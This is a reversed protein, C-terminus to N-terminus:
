KVHTRQAIRQKLKIQAVSDACKLARNYEFNRKLLSDRQTMLSNIEKEFSPSKFKKKAKKGDVTACVNINYRDYGACYDMEGCYFVTNKDITKQGGAFYDAFTKEINKRNKYLESFMEKICTETIQNVEPKKTDAYPGIKVNKIIESILYEQALYLDELGADQYAGYMLIEPNQCMDEIIEKTNLMDFGNKELNKALMYMYREIVQENSAFVSKEMAGGPTQQWRLENTQAEKTLAQGYFNENKNFGYSNLVSDIIYDKYKKDQEQQVRYKEVHDKKNTLNRKNGEYTKCAKPGGILALAVVFGFIAYKGTKSM